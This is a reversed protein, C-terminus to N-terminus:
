RSTCDRQTIVDLNKMPVLWWWRRFLPRPNYIFFPRHTQYITTIAVLLLVVFGSPPYSRMKAPWASIGSAGSVFGQNHTVYTVLPIGHLTHPNSRADLYSIEMTVTFPSIDLTPHTSQTLSIVWTATSVILFFSVGSVDSTEELSFSVGVQSSPSSSPLFDVLNM